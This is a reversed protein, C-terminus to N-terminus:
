TAGRSQAAAENTVAAKAMLHMTQQSPLLPLRKLGMEMITEAIAKEIRRELGSVVRQEM